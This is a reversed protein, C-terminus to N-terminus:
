QIAYHIVVRVAGAGVKGGVCAVTIIEEKYFERYTYRDADYGGVKGLGASVASSDAMIANYDPTGSTNIKGVEILVPSDASTAETYIYDVRGVAGSDGPFGVMLTDGAGSLDIEPSVWVNDFTSTSDYNGIFVSNSSKNYMRNNTVKTGHNFARILVSTGGAVNRDNIVNESILTNHSGTKVYYINTTDASYIFLTDDGATTWFWEKEANVYVSATTDTGITDRFTVYDVAAASTNLSYWKDGSVNVWGDVIYSVTAVHIPIVSVYDFYNGTISHGNTDNAWRGPSGGSISIGYTMEYIFNDSIKCGSSVDLHIATSPTVPIDWNGYIHNNSVTIGRSDAITVAFSHSGSVQNNSFISGDCRVNAALAYKIAYPTASRQAVIINNTVLCRESRQLSIGTPVGNTSTDAIFVSNGSIISDDSDGNLAIGYTTIGSVVNGTIKTNLSHYVAAFSRGSTITNDKLKIDRNWYQFTGLSAGMSDCEMDELTIDIAMQAVVVGVRNNTEGNNGTVDYNSVFKGGSFKIGIRPAMVAVKGTASIDCVLPYYLYILTGDISKVRNVDFPDYLYADANGWATTDIILIYDNVSFGSADSVRVTDSLRYFTDASVSVTGSTDGLVDFMHDGAASNLRLTSNSAFKIDVSDVDITISSTLTNEGYVIIEGRSELLSFAQSLTGAWDSLIVKDKLYDVRVWQLGATPHDTAIISFSESYASDIVTWWGGGSTNASSLQKLYASRGEALEILKLAATDAAHYYALSDTIVASITAATTAGYNIYTSTQWSIGNVYIDYAGPTVTTTDTYYYRGANLWTCTEILVSNQYLTVTADQIPRGNSSEIPVPLFYKTAGFVSSCFLLIIFLIRM